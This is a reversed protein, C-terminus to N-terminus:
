SSERAVLKPDLKLQFLQVDKDSDINALLIEAAKKGMEKIPVSITSLSPALYASVAIDDFGVIAVDSPIRVSAERAARIFGVAVYDSFAHVATPPNETALLEKGREYGQEMTTAGYSVLNMDLEIGRESLAQMYGEFRNEASLDSQPGNILAIRQYGRDLLHSTALHGARVNDVVVYHSNWGKPYRAIAVIPFRSEVLAALEEGQDRVPAIILGDVQEALMIEISEQETEPTENSDKLIISYDNAAAANEIGKVVAAFFPNSNDAVVVGIIGTRNQRLRQALRNPHYGLRHAAELITNKTELRIEGRENLARSVTNASFGVEQAIDEITVRKQIM